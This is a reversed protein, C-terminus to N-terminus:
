ATLPDLRGDAIAAGRRYARALGRDIEAAREPSVEITSRSVARLLDLTIELSPDDHEGERTRSPQTM